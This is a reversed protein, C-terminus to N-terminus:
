RSTRGVLFAIGSMLFLIVLMERMVSVAFVAVLVLNFISLRGTMTANYHKAACAFAVLYILIFGASVLPVILGESQSFIFMGFIVLLYSITLAVMTHTSPGNRIGVLFKPFVGDRAGAALLRAASLVWANTSLVVVVLALLNFAFSMQANQFHQTLHDLVAFNGNIGQSSNTSLMLAFAVLIYLGGVLPVSILLAIPFTRRPRHVDPAITAVNEWGMFTYFCIGLATAFGAWHFPEFVVVYSESQGISLCALIGLIAITVVVLLTQVRSSNRLGLLNFLVSLVMFGAAMPYLWNESLGFALMAYRSSILGMIPNGVVMMIVILVSLVSALRASFIDGIFALVGNSNPFDISIRSFVWAIPGAYIAMIFWALLAWNGSAEQALAPIVFIGAGVVNSVYYAM